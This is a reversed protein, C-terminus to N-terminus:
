VPGGTAVAPRQLATSRSKVAFVPLGIQSEVADLVAARVAGGAVGPVVRDYDIMLRLAVIVGQEGVAVAVGGRGVVAGVGPTAEAIRRGTRAILRDVVWTAGRGESLLMPRVVRLTGPTPTLAARAAAAHERVARMVNSVLGAPVTVEEGALERLRRHTEKSSMWPRGAGCPCSAQNGPRAAAPNGVAQEVLEALPTGCPLRGAANAGVVAM